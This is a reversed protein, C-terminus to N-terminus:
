LYYLVVHVNSIKLIHEFKDYWRIQLVM